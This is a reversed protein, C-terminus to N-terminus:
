IKRNMVFGLAVTGIAAAFWICTAYFGYKIIQRKKVNFRERLLYLSLSCAFIPTALNIFLDKWMPGSIYHQSVRSGGINLLGDYMNWSYLFEYALGLVAYTLLLYATIKRINTIM